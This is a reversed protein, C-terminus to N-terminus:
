LSLLATNTNHTYMLHVHHSGDVNIEFNSETCQNSQYQFEHVTKNIIHKIRSGSLNMSLTSKSSWFPSTHSEDIFQVNSKPWIRRLRVTRLEITTMSRVRDAFFITKYVISTTQTSYVISPELPLKRELHTDIVLLMRDSGCM